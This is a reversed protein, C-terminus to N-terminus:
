SKLLLNSNWNGIETNAQPKAWFSLRNRRARIFWDHSPWLFIPVKTVIPVRRCRGMRLCRLAEKVLQAVDVWKMTIDLPWSCPVIPRNNSQNPTHDVYKSNHDTMHLITNPEFGGEIPALYGLICNARSAQLVAAVHLGPALCHTYLRTVNDGPVLCNHVNSGERPAVLIFKGCFLLKTTNLKDQLVEPFLKPPNFLANRAAFEPCYGVLQQCMGSQHHLTMTSLM